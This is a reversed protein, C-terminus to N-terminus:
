RNGTAQQCHSWQANEKIAPTAVEVWGEGTSDDNRGGRAGIHNRRGCFPQRSRNESDNCSLAFRLIEDLVYRYEGFVHDLEWCPLCQWKFMNRRVNHRHSGTDHGPVAECLIAGNDNHGRHPRHDM